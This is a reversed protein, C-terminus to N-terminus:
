QVGRKLHGKTYGSGPRKKERGHCYAQVFDDLVRRVEERSELTFCLRLSDPALRKVEETSYLLSLPECNYIINYCYRCYNVVPFEKQYRDALVRRAQRRDCKELNKHICGATTMLPLYGYAILESEGCGRRALERANLELPLTDRCIGQSRWFEEAKRNWSYLSHDGIVPIEWGAAKLFGLEDINRVAVADLGARKLLDMRDLFWNKAELRFVSPLALVCEKGAEHCASAYQDLKEFEVRESTLYISKVEPVALIDPLFEPNELQVRLIPRTKKRDESGAQAEPIQREPRFNKKKKEEQLQELAERRIRNLEGVPCFIEEELEIDLQEFEFPTDGTKRLQKELEERTMPRKEAKQAPKGTVCIETEKYKVVFETPFKTSIRFIGQIKEKKDKELYEKHLRELLSEYEQKAKMEQRGKGEFHGPRSLSMLERGNHLQYYGRSFGGRNYLAQLEAYDGKEVHYGEEGYELCRDLYKRYIRVVGATYEPRKMRGEIKLSCVGAQLIQPLIEITCMDKPSLLYSEKPSNLVRSGDKWQYPLRCPQACRGRNGSRGGLMSSFLCQGSYCYCLAGHVFSEIEIEVTDHIRRIEELSLERATVVRAAGQEKLFAAGDAGLVTMQTSAHLPLDPFVEKLYSFVGLDQVIVGDLGSEYYPKLYAGLDELEEDKLLTNVTLYLDCGHLHAFRIAQCLGEEDPNDAYARAGFRSGGIYVADAGANVAARLSEFSGAPALLEIQHRM